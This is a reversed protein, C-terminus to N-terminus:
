AEQIPVSTVKKAELSQMSINPLRMLASTGLDHAFHSSEPYEPRRAQTQPTAPYKPSKSAVTPHPQAPVLLRNETESPSPNKYQGLARLVPPKQGKHVPEQNPYEEWSM